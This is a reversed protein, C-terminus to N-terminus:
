ILHESITKWQLNQHEKSGSYWKLNTYHHDTEDKIHIVFPLNSSNPVFTQAVLYFISRRLNGEDNKLTVQANRTGPDKIKLSKGEKSRKYSIVETGDENIYIGDFSPIELFKTSKERVIKLEVKKPKEIKLKITQPEKKPNATVIDPNESVVNLKPTEPVINLKPTEPVIKINPKEIKIGNDPQSNKLKEISKEIKMEYLIENVAQSFEKVPQINKDPNKFPFNKTQITYMM